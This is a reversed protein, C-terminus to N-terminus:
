INKMVLQIVDEDKVEHDLGIQQGDFKGSDGWVRAYQFRDEFKSHIEKCVDRIKAGESLIVPEEKDVSGGQPKLYIRILNLGDFIKEKLYDLNKEEKASIYIKGEEDEKIEKNFKDVKNVVTIAPIYARNGSLEDILDDISIKERLSVRASSIKNERLITKITEYEVEQEVSSTISIGGREKQEISIKPSERNLRIGAEYLEQNLKTLNNTSDVDVMRLVLDANRIVSLVKKGSGRGSSAGRILGPVDLLQIKAGKHELMGPVVKLTTFDYSATESDANTIKSLLTSKGVSPYGVLVVTRDGAKPISYGQGGSPSSSRKELEEELTALKAKLRGIHKETSKNYPTEKIEQKIEEIERKISSTM